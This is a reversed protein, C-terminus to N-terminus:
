SIEDLIFGNEGRYYGKELRKSLLGFIVYKPVLKGENVANALQKYFSSKPNFEQQIPTGMSVHPVKAKLFIIERNVGRHDEIRYKKIEKSAMTRARFSSAEDSRRHTPDSKGITKTASQKRSAKGYTSKRTTQKTCAM